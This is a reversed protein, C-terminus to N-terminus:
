TTPLLYRERRKANKERKQTIVFEEREKKEKKKKAFGLYSEKASEEAKSQLTVCFLACIIIERERQACV